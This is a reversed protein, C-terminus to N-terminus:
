SYCRRIYRRIYRRICRRIYRRIAPAEDAGTDPPSPRMFANGLHSQATSQERPTHPRQPSMHVAPVSTALWAGGRMVSCLAVHTPWSRYLEDVIAGMAPGEILECREARLPPVFHGLAVRLRGSTRPPSPSAPLCPLPIATSPFLSLLIFLPLMCVVCWCSCGCWLACGGRASPAARRAPPAVRFVGRDGAGSRGGAAAAATAHGPVLGRATPAHPSGCTGVPTLHLASLAGDCGRLAHLLGLHRAVLSTILVNLCTPAARPGAARANSDLVAFDGQAAPYSPKPRHRRPSTGPSSAAPPPPASGMAATRSTARLRASAACRCACSAFCPSSCRRSFAAVCARANSM